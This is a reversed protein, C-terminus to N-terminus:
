LTTLKSYTPDDVIKGGFLLRLHLGSSDHGEFAEQKKIFGDYEAIEFTKKTDKSENGTKKLKAKMNSKLIGALM